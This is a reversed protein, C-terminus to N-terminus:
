SRDQDGGAALRRLALRDIKGGPLLPMADLEVLARPAWTRPVSAAVQDRIAALSPPSGSAVVCAVVRTGWEPDPVGVAVAEAVGPLGALARTVAPLVVNVGGSIVVEDVRGLVELRGDDDFRGLDSTAFWGDRLAEATADPDEAYGDFLMPGALQIRGDVALRVAVGDLPIGDYVCGGCTESMGYTQVLRVGEEACRAALGPDLAAGGVLVADFRRLLALGDAVALRHLQTPVVSTYARQGTVAAVAAAWDAHEDGLVPEVGCAASRILVQLGAVNDAPLTLLWQGPGGLRGLAARASAALAAHSLVVGKPSGTSGSTRVVVPGDPAEWWRRVVAWLEGASGSLPRLGAPSRDAPQEPSPV